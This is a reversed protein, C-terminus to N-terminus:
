KKLLRIVEERLHFLATPGKHVFSDTMKRVALPVKEESMVTYMVVKIDEPSEESGKKISRIIDLGQPNGIGLFIDVVVVSPQLERVMRLGEDATEAEVVAIGEGNLAEVIQTRAFKSDEIVVVRAKTSFDIGRNETPQKDKKGLKVKFTTGCSSCIVSKGSEPVESPDM